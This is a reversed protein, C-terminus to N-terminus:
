DLGSIPNTYNQMKGIDQNKLENQLKIKQYQKNIEFQLNSLKKVMSNTYYMDYALPFLSIILTLVLVIGVSTNICENKDTYFVTYFLKTNPITLPILFTSVFIAIYIKRSLIIKRFVFFLILLVNPILVLLFTKDERNFISYHFFGSGIFFLCCIGLVIILVLRITKKIPPFHCKTTLFFLLIVYAIIFALSNLKNFEQIFPSFLLILFSFIGAILYLHNAKISHANNITELTDTDTRSTYVKQLTIDLEHNQPDEDEKKKGLEEILYKTKDKLEKKFDIIASKTSSNFNLVKLIESNSNIGNILNYGCLLEFVSSFDNLEM